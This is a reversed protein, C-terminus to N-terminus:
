IHILSLLLGVSIAMGTGGLTNSLGLNYRSLQAMRNAVWFSMAFSATVWTDLPNKADIYGQVIKSGDCFRNNMHRLFQPEVLNDADFIVVADYKKPMKFLKNFFWELAYGKGRNETDFREFVQAGHSRAIDATSDTSNDSIIFVDFLERPYDLQLLNEVLPGIVIEENHAPVIIAFTNKPIYTKPIRFQVLGAMGLIFFYAAIISLVIQAPIMIIDLPLFEINM